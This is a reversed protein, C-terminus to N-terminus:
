PQPWDPAVARAAAENGAAEVAAKAALRAAEIRSGIALWQAHAGSVVAAVDALTAGTIGVEASLLPYAGAGASEAYRLAEAAKAQYTMAQGAGPTIYRTREAEAAADIQAKLASKLAALDIPESTYIRTVTEGDWALSWGTARHGAPVTTEAIAHVGIAALREAPWLRLVSAPHQVGAADTFAGFLEVPEGDRMIAYAM